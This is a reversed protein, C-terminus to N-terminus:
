FLFLLLLSILVSDSLNEDQIEEFFIIIINENNIKVLVELDLIFNRCNM